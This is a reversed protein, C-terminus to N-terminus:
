VERDSSERPSPAQGEKSPSPFREYWRVMNRLAKIADEPTAHSTIGGSALIETIRGIAPDVDAASVAPNISVVPKKYKKAVEALRSSMKEEMSFFFKEDPVWARMSEPIQLNEYRSPIKGIIGIAGMLILLDIEESSLLVEISDAYSKFDRVAAATIDVPNRRSWFEPLFSDLKSILKESLEVM